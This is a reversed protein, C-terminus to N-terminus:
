PSSDKLPSETFSTTSSQHWERPHLEHDRQPLYFLSSNINQQPANFPVPTPASNIHEQLENIQGVQKKPRWSFCKLQMMQIQNNESLHHQASACHGTCCCVSVKVNLIGVFEKSCFPKDPGSSEPTNLHETHTKSSYYFICINIPKSTISAFSAILCRVFSFWMKFYLLTKFFCFFGGWLKPFLFNQLMRYDNNHLSTWICEFWCDANDGHVNSINLPVNQM